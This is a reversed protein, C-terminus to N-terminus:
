RDVARDGGCRYAAGGLLDAETTWGERSSDGRYASNVLAVIGDVDSVDARRLTLEPIAPLQMDASKTKM